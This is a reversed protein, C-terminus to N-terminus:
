YCEAYVCTTLERDMYEMESKRDEELLMTRARHHLIRVVSLKHKLPHNCTFNLYKNTHILKKYITVELTVDEIREINTDLFALAGDVEWETTVKINRDLSSLHDTLPQVQEANLKTHIMWM